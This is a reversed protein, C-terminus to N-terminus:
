SYREHDTEDDVSQAIIIRGFTTAAMFLQSPLRGFAPWIIPRHAQRELATEAM